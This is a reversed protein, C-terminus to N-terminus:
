IDIFNILANMAPTLAKGKHCILQQWISIPLYPNSIPLISKQELEKKVTFEPIFGIGFSNLILEKIVQVNGIEYTPIIFEDHEVIINDLKKRYSINEETLYIPYQKIDSINVNAKGALPHKSSIYFGANVASEKLIVFDPRRMKYDLTCIMDVENHTLLTFMESTVGTKIVIKVNSYHKQFDILIKPFISTCISDAMAIRIIGAINDTCGNLQSNLDETLLQINQTYQLFVVGNATLKIKHGIRDFLLHGLEKEINSIQTSVASQSYGLESAALSFSKLEAVKIFTQINKFDMQGGFLILFISSM